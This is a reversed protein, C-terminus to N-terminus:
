ETDFRGNRCACHGRQAVDLGCSGEGFWRKSYTKGDYRAENKKLSDAQAKGRGEALSEAFNAFLITVLLILFVTLEYGISATVGFFQPFLMLLLVVFTGVEVVFMVPNKIMAVPNLKVFSDKVATLMMKRNFLVNKKEM